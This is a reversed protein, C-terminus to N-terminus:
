GVRRVLVTVPDPAPVQVPFSQMTLWDGPATRDAGGSAVRAWVGAGSTSSVSDPLDLTAEASWSVGGGGASVTADAAALVAAVGDAMSEDRVEIRVPTGPAPAPDPSGDPIVRVRM